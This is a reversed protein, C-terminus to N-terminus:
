WGHREMELAGIEDTADLRVAVHAVALELAAQRQRLEVARACRRHQLEHLVAIRRTHGKGLEVVHVFRKQRGFQDLELRLHEALRHQVRQAEVVLVELEADGFHEEPRAFEDLEVADHLGVRLIQLRNHGIHLLPQHSRAPDLGCETCDAHNFTLPARECGGM